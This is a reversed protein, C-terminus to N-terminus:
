LRASDVNARGRPLRNLTEVVDEATDVMEYLDRTPPAAFEHDVTANIMDDLRQWYGGTNVILIPKDHMRLQRWTIIEFAEELTGVGGPLVVFGDSLEFMKQKRAHMSDVTVLETLERHALDRVKLFDPIVGIVRGGADLAADAVAGMMGMHGGGYVVTIGARALSEGLANAAELYVPKDGSSAGCFVTVSRISDTKTHKDTM